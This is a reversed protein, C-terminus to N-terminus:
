SKVVWTVGGPLRGQRMRASGFARKGVADYYGVQANRGLQAAFKKRGPSLGLEQGDKNRACHPDVTTRLFAKHGGGSDIERRAALKLLVARGVSAARVSRRRPGRGQRVHSVGPASILVGPGPGRGLGILDSDRPTLGLILTKEFSVLNVQRHKRLQSGDM